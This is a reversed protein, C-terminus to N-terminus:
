KTIYEILDNTDNFISKGLFTNEKDHSFYVLDLGNSECLDKKRIDRERIKVFSSEGGFFSYPKFHQRGQCEIGVKCSPIYFDLRLRGLFEASYQSEFQINNDLLCKEVERELLSRNCKPCGHNSLIDNPRSFFECGCTNCLLQVKTHSNLYVVNEYSLGGDKFIKKSEKIFSDRDHVPKNCLKCGQGNWHKSAMQEFWGHEDCYVLIKSHSGHYHTLDYKYKDGHAKKCRRLCEDKSIEESKARKMKACESCGQGNLFNYMNILFEGHIPCVVNIRNKTDRDNINIQALGYSNGHVNRAKSIYKDQTIQKRSMCCVFLPMLM